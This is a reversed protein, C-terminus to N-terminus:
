DTLDALLDDDLEIEVSRMSWGITTYAGATVVVDAAKGTKEDVVPQSGCRRSHSGGPPLEKGRAPEGIM